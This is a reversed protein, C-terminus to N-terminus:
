RQTPDCETHLGDIAVNSSVSWSVKNEPTFRTWETGTCWLFLCGTLSRWYSFPIFYKRPVGLGDNPTLSTAFSVWYDIMVKSILFSSPSTDGPPGYIYPVESGHAVLLLCLSFLVIM